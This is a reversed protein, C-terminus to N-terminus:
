VPDETGLSSDGHQTWLGLDVLPERRSVPPKLLAGGASVFRDPRAAGVLTALIGNEVDYWLEIEDDDPQGMMLPVLVRHRALEGLPGHNEEFICQGLLLQGGHLRSGDPERLFSAEVLGHRSGYGDQTIPLHPIPSVPETITELCAGM